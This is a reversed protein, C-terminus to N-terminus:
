ADAASQPTQRGASGSDRLVSAFPRVCVEIRGKVSSSVGPLSRASASHPSVSPSSGAVHPADAPPSGSLGRTGEREPPLWTPVVASSRLPMSGHHVSTRKIAFSAFFHACANHEQMTVSPFYQKEPTRLSPLGSLQPSHNDAHPSRRDRPRPRNCLRCLRRAHSWVPNARSEALRSKQVLVPKLKRFPCCTSATYKEHSDKLRPFGDREVRFCLFFM